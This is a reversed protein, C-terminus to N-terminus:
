KKAWRHLVMALNASGVVVCWQGDPSWGVQRGVFHQIKVSEVKHAKLHRHPSDANYRSEWTNVTDQSFDRLLKTSKVDEDAQAALVTPVLASASVSGTDGSEM